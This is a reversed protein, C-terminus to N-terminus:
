THRRARFISVYKIISYKSAILGVVAGVTIRLGRICLKGGM